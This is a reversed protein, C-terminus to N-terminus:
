LNATMTLTTLGADNVILVQATEGAHALAADIADHITDHAEYGFRRVEHTHMNTVAVLRFRMKARATRVLKHLGMTYPRGALALWDEQNPFEESLRQYFASGVGETCPSTVSLMGGDRVAKQCLEWGKEIQYLNLDLPPHVAAIVIDYQRDLEVTYYERATTCARAFCQDVNGVFAAAVLDNSDLVVQIAWLREAPIVQTSYDIFERVPNGKSRLPESTPSVAGAHSREVTEYGALGPILSKRGGTFGAFFHPEVSNILTLRDARLAANNVLVDGLESKVITMNKADRGDHILIRDRIDPLIAGFIQALEAETPQRHLGTAVIAKWGPHHNLAPLIHSLIMATPTSRTADNVVVLPSQSDRLFDTLSPAKIPERLANSLVEGGDVGARARRGVVTLQASVPLALPVIKEGFRISHQPTTPM